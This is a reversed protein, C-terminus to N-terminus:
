FTDSLFERLNVDLDSVTSWCSAPDAGSADSYSVEIKTNEDAIDIDGSIKDFVRFNGGLPNAVRVTWDSFRIDVHRPTSGDTNSELLVKPEEPWTDIEAVIEDVRQKLKEVTM